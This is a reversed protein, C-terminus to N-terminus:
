YNQSPDAVLEDYECEYLVSYAHLRQTDVASRNWGQYLMDQVTEMEAGLARKIDAIAALADLTYVEVRVDMRNRRIAGIAIIEQATEQEILVVATPDQCSQTDVRADQGFVALGINTRWGDTINIHRLRSIVEDLCKEAVSIM